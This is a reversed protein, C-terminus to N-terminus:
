IELKQALRIKLPADSISNYVKLLRAKMNDELEENSVYSFALRRTSIPIGDDCILDVLNNLWKSDKTRQFLGYTATIVWHVPRAGNKLESQIYDDIELDSIKFAFGVIREDNTELKKLVTSKIAEQELEPLDFFLNSSIPDYRLQGSSAEIEENLRLFAATSNPSTSM